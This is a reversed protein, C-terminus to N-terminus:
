IKFGVVLINCGINQSMCKKIKLILTGRSTNYWKWLNEYYIECKWRNSPQHCMIGHLSTWWNSGKLIKQLFVEM